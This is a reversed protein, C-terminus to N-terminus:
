GGGLAQRAAQALVAPDQAGSVSLRDAFVFTPVAHIGLLAAEREEARVEDAFRDAALLEAAEDGDLGAERAAAVLVAHDGINAGRGWHAAFLADGLRQQTDRGARLAAAMLRHAAFTNPRIALTAPDAM